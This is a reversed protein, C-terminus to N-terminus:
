SGPPETPRRMVQRNRELFNRSKDLFYADHAMKDCGVPVFWCQAPLLVLDARNFCLVSLSRYKDCSIM